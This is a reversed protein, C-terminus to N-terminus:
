GQFASISHHSCTDDCLHHEETILAHTMVCIVAVGEPHSPLSRTPAPTGSSGPVKITAMSQKGRSNRSTLFLSGMMNSGLEKVKRDSLVM